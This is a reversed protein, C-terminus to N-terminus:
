SDIAVHMRGHAILLEGVRCEFQLTPGDAELGIEFQEGPRLPHVFKAVPIAKLALHKVQACAANLVENLLVVGPVIPSGPFHGALAPHDIPISRSVVWRM